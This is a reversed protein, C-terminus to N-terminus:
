VDIIFASARRSRGCFPPLLHRRILTAVSRDEPATGEAILRAAPLVGGQHKIWDTAQRDLEPITTPTYTKNDLLDQYEARVQGNVVIPNIQRHKRERLSYQRGVGPEADTKGAAANGTNGTNGAEGASSKEAFIEDAHTSIEGGHTIKYKTDTATPTSGTAADSERTPSSGGGSAKESAAVEEMTSLNHDYHLVYDEGTARFILHAIYDVGAFRYPADFYFYEGQEGYRNSKWGKYRAIQILDPLVPIAALRATSHVRRQPHIMMENFSQKSINVTCGTQQNVPHRRESPISAKIYAKLEKVSPFTPISAGEPAAIQSLEDFSRPTLKKIESVTMPRKRTSFLRTNGEPTTETKLTDFFDQFAANIRTREEGEPFPRLRESEEVGWRYIPNRVPRRPSTKRSEGPNVEPHNNRNKELINKKLLM